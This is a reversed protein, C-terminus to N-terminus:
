DRDSDGPRTSLELRRLRASADKPDVGCMDAAPRLASRVRARTPEGFLRCRLGADLQVCPVGAAKGDPMGPIPSSISPVVCCAGCGSRCNM